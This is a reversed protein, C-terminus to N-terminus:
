INTNEPIYFNINRLLADVRKSIYRIRPSVIIEECQNLVPNTVPSFTAFNTHIRPSLDIPFERTEFVNRAIFPQKKRKIYRNRRYSSCGVWVNVPCHSNTTFLKKGRLSYEVVLWFHEGVTRPCRCRIIIVFSYQTRKRRQSSCFLIISASM